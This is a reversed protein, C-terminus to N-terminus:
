SSRSSQVARAPASGYETKRDGCRIIDVAGEGVDSTSLINQLKEAALTGCIVREAASNQLITANRQCPHNVNLPVYAHGSLRAALIGAYSSIHRQAMVATIPQPSDITLAPFDAAIKQAAMVLEAYNWTEGDIILATRDPSESAVQLIRQGARYASDTTM